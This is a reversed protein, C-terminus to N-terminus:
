LTFRFTSCTLWAVHTPRTPRAAADKSTVPPNAAQTPARRRSHAPQKALDGRCVHRLRNRRDRGVAHLPRHGRAGAAQAPRCCGLQRRRREDGTRGSPGDREYEKWSGGRGPAKYIAWRPRRTPSSTGVTGSRGTSPCTRATCPSPWTTRMAWRMQDMDDLRRGSREALEQMAQILIPAASKRNFLHEAAEGM